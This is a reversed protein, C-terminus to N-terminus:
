TSVELLATQGVMAGMQELQIVFTDVAAADVSIHFVAVDNMGDEANTDSRLRVEAAAHGVSDLCYFRFGAGGGAYAVDRSGLEFERIDGEGTPFGRLAVAFQAPAESDAYVDAQGRVSWEICPSAVGHSARRHLHRFSPSRNKDHGLYRL